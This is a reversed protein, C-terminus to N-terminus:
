SLANVINWIDFSLSGLVLLIIVASLPLMDFRRPHQTRWFYRLSTVLLTLALIDLILVIALSFGGALGILPLAVPLVVYQLICRLGSIALSMGFAREAPASGDTESIQPTVRLVRLMVTDVTDTFAMHM